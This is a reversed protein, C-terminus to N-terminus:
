KQGGRENRAGFPGALVASNLLLSYAGKPMPADRRYHRCIAVTLGYRLIDNMVEGVQSIALQWLSILAKVPGYNGRSPLPRQRMAGIFYGGHTKISDV